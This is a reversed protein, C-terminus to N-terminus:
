LVLPWHLGGWWGVTLQLPLQSGGSLGSITEVVLDLLVHWVTSDMNSAAGEVQM